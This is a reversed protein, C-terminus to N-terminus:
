WLKRWKPDRSAIQKTKM